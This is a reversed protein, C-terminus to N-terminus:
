TNETFADWRRLLVLGAGVCLLLIVVPIVRNDAGTSPLTLPESTPTSEGITSELVVTTTTSSGPTSTTPSTT